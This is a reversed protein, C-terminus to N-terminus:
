EHMKDCIYRLHYGPISLVYIYIIPIHGHKRFTMRLYGSYGPNCAGFVCIIPIYDTLM